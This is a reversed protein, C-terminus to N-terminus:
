KVRKRMLAVTDKDLKDMGFRKLDPEFSVCTWDDGSFPSIEPASASSMNNKWTM